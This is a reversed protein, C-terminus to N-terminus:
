EPSSCICDCSYSLLFESLEVYELPLSLFLDQTFMIIDFEATIKIHTQRGTVSIHWTYLEYLTTSRSRNLDVIQICTFLIPFLQLNQVARFSRHCNFYFDLDTQSYQAIDNRRWSSRNVTDWEPLARDLEIMATNKLYQKNCKSKKSLTPIAAPYLWLSFLHRLSLSERLM